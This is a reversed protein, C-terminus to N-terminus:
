RRGPPAIARDKRTLAAAVGALGLASIILPPWWGAAVAPTIGTRLPVDAVVAGQEWHGTRALERGEPGYIASEGVTSVHVVSRGSVVALVKAEAVQQVAEHSEGFLANNSQVVILQAGDDVVDRVLNDYAIEFCILVGIPPGAVDTVGVEEGAIMDSSVMDVKDTIARFFSRAPIYEGFPVPHRKAYQYVVQGDPAYVLSHNYRRGDETPTQTGIMVPADAQGSLDVIAQERYPDARPDWGTSDEPWVILDLDTGESRLVEHSMALHNEFVGEPMTLAVPDIPDMNGQIGAVRLTSQQAPAPNPPYPVLLCAAVVTITVAIPLLGAIGGLGRRSRGTLALVGRLVGLGLLACVLALGATGIWPGLNLLPSDALAFASAGWPLGGWPAHSRLTEVAVWLAAVVLASGPGLGRRVLVTRALVAFLVPFLAQFIGLALWPMAGAYTAAWHTLPVFFGLGWAFSALLTATATRTLATAGLAGIALPLLFWLDYPPFAAVAALGGVAGVPVAVAAPVPRLAEERHPPRSGRAGAASRARSRAGSRAAAGSGRSRTSTAGSRGTGGSSM